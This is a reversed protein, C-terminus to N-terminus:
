NLILTLISYDFKSVNGTISWCNLPECNWSVSAPLIINEKDKWHKLVIHFEHRGSNNLRESNEVNGFYTLLLLTAWQADYISVMKNLHTFNQSLYSM